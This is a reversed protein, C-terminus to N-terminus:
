EDNVGIEVIKSFSERTNRSLKEPYNQRHLIEWRSDM